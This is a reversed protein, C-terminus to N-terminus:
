SNHFFVRKRSRYNAIKKRERKNPNMPKALERDGYTRVNAIVDRRFSPCYQKLVAPVMDAKM